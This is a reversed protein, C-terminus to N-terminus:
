TAWPFYFTGSKRPKEDSDLFRRIVENAYRHSETSDWEALLRITATGNKFDFEIEGWEGDCDAQYQYVAATKTKSVRKYKVARIWGDKWLAEAFRLLAREFANKISSPGTLGYRTALEDFTNQKKISLVEGNKMRIALRAEILERDRDLKLSWFAKRIVKVPIGRNNTPPEEPVPAAVITDCTEQGTEEDTLWISVRNRILAADDMYKAATPQTCGTEEMFRLIASELDPCQGRIYGALRIQRYIDPLEIFWPEESRWFVRVAEHLREYIYTTFLAGKSPDYDPLLELMKQVCVMKLEMFREPNYRLEADGVTINKIRKNM